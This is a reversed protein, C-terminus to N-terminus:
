EVKNGNEWREVVSSGDPNNIKTKGNKKGNVWREEIITGDPKNTILKGHKEGNKYKSVITTGDTIYWVGKMKKGNIDSFGLFYDGNHNRKEIPKMKGGYDHNIFISDGTIKSITSIGVIKGKNYYSEMKVTDGVYEIFNGNRVGNEFNQIIYDRGNPYIYKGKGNLVSNSFYGEFVGGDKYTITGKGHEIKTDAYMMGVYKSGDNYIKEGFLSGKNASEFRSRISSETNNDLKESYHIYCYCTNECLKNYAKKNFEVRDIKKYKYSIDNTMLAKYGVMNNDYGLFKADYDPYLKYMMFNFPHHTEKSRGDSWNEYISEVIVAVMAGSYTENMFLDITRDTEKSVASQAILASILAAGLEVGTAQLQKEWEDDVNMNINTILAKSVEKTFDTAVKAMVGSKANYKNDGFFLHAQLSDLDVTFGSTMSLLSNPHAMLDYKKALYCGPLLKGQYRDGYKNIEIMIYPVYDGGISFDSIWIGTLDDKFPTENKIDGIYSLITSYQRSVESDWLHDAMYSRTYRACKGLSLLDKKNAYIESLVNNALLGIHTPEENYDVLTNLIEAAINEHGSDLTDLASQYKLLSEDDIDDYYGNDYVITLETIEEEFEDDPVITDNDIDNFTTQQYIEDYLEQKYTNIQQQEDDNEVVFDDGFLMKGILTETDKSEQDQSERRSIEDNLYNNVLSTSTSLDKDGQQIDSHEKQINAINEYTISEILDKNISTYDESYLPGISINRIFARYKVVNNDTSVIKCKIFTGDNLNIYDQAFLYHAAFFLIIITLLRKM